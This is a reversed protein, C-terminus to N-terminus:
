SSSTVRRAGSRGGAALLALTLLLWMSLSGGGSKAPPPPPASVTISATGLNNSVVPDDQDADISGAISATGSSVANLTMSFTKTAGSPLTDPPCTVHAGSLSCGSAASAFTLMAPLDATQIVAGTATRPGNNIVNCQVTV